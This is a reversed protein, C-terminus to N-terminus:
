FLTTASIAMILITIMSATVTRVGAKLFRCVKPDNTECRQCHLTEDCDHDTECQEGSGKFGQFARCGYAKSIFFDNKYSCSCKTAGDSCTTREGDCTSTGPICTDGYRPNNCFGSGSALKGDNCVCKKTTTDCKGSLCKADSATGGDDCNAGVLVKTSDYCLNPIYGSSYTKGSPCGCTHESNSCVLDEKCVNDEDCQDGNDVSKKCKGSSWFYNERCSCLGISGCGDYISGKCYLGKTDDCENDNEGCVIGETVVVSAASKVVVLVCLFYWVAQMIKPHM